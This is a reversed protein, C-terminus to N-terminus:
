RMVSKLYKGTESKTVKLVNEPTGVAVIEGGANGGDPGLDIVRDVSKVVDLNHEIVLVTNGQDVLEQLLEVLKAIDEFHLGTTPEDLIYLTKGTGRKSLEKSLKVRQAEGGSLTTSSQGLTIYDLGVRHLTDLKRHILKHNQFFELAESVSMALVDAINKDKYKIALTEKNYRQGNCADCHVYVDSMFHMEVRIMGGGQCAECRGGKVNFSFRGPGYGRVKSDPLSAFLDRVLPFLGVYTAPTSRPTRGIPNQNIDIVKDLHELGQLEKFPAVEWNSDYFHNALIRYLTDMILTSKGSGSVGTVAIFMGLPFEVSVNKLNNGTAGLLRLSLGNGKRRAKPIPISATGALYKGTISQPNAAVEAPTGTAIINGGLVGARPGLDIVHDASRITDEDHEVMLITNGLERLDRLIDLLRHHDRPHLGISPEDLVYLVGVLSSGVQTALRIRQGEGGSLTRTPRDLSLYGAGVRVLYNLRSDIQKLIKEGILKERDPWPVSKLTKRLDKASLAALETITRGAILVNRPETRLRTGKCDPCVRMALQDIEGDDNEDTKHAVKDSVRYSINLKQAGGEEGAAYRIDQIEQIDITGLGNCTECAGRPNNFSFLRPEIEPFSFGCIPCASHISYTKREGKGTEVTVRDHGYQLATHVSEALRGRIGDKIVLKDIVIDIDHTKTKALKKAKDLDVFTGDIKATVFGRRLWKQFENMFEGKKGQAHPALIYLRTGEPRKEIDAIIQDPTQAAVPVHHTPCHPEGVKAFLLRLYDYVETVTGVTSRPNLGVSKQDIAIAPSLGSIADVDPKKLKDLFNRAYTSLSDVYRRQGEAYITDFAMSSKGSGSLGTIVTIKNRPIDVSVNKLNHERAGRVQIGEFHDDM